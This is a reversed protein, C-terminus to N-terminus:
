LLFAEVEAIAEDPQEFSLMHGSNELVVYKSNKAIDAIEKGAEPPCMGDHRGSIVLIPNDANAYAEHNDFNGLLASAELKQEETYKTEGMLISNGDIGRQKIEPGSTPAYGTRFM